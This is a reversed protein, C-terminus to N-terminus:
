VAGTTTASAEREAQWAQWSAMRTAQDEKGAPTPLETIEAAAVDPPSSAAQQQQPDTAAPDAAPPATLPVSLTQQQLAPPGAHGPEQKAQQQLQVDARGGPLPVGEEAIQQLQDGKGQEQVQGNLAAEAGLLLQKQQQQRQVRQQEEFQLAEMAAAAAHHAHMSGEPTILGGSAEQFFKSITALDAHRTQEYEYPKIQM